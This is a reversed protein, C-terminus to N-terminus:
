KTKNKIAAGVAYLLEWALSPIQAVAVVKAVAISISCGLGSRWALSQVQTEAAVQAAATANKVWQAM